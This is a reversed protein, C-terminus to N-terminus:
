SPPGGSEKKKILDKLGTLHWANSWDGEDLRAQLLARCCLACQAHAQEMQGRRLLRM